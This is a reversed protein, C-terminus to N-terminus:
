RRSDQTEDFDSEIAEDYVGEYPINTLQTFAKVDLISPDFAEIQNPDKM